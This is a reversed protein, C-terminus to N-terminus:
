LETGFKVNDLIIKLCHASEFHLVCLQELKKCGKQATPSCCLRKKIINKSNEREHYSLNQQTLASQLIEITYCSLKSISDYDDLGKDDRPM